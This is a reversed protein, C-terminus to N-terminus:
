IFTKSHITSHQLVEHIFFFRFFTIHYSPSILFYRLSVVMCLSLFINWQHLTYRQLLRVRQLSFLCKNIHISIHNFCITLSILRKECFSNLTAPTSDFTSIKCFLFIRVCSSIMQIQICYILIPFFHHHCFIMDDGNGFTALIRKFIVLCHASFAVHLLPIFQNSM